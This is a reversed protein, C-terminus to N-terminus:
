RIKKVHYYIRRRVLTRAARIIEGLDILEYEGNELDIIKFEPSDPKAALAPPVEIIRDKVKSTNIIYVLPLFDEFVADRIRYEILKRTEANIIGNECMRKAGNSVGVMNAAIRDCHGDTTVVERIFNNAITLPNSNAAQSYLDDFKLAVWVFHKGNYFDNDVNYAFRTTTSFLFPYLNIDIPM